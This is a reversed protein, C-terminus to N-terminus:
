FHTPINYIINKKNKELKEFFDYDSDAIHKEYQYFYDDLDTIDHSIIIASIYENDNKVIILIESYGNIIYKEYLKVYKKNGTENGSYSYKILSLYYNISKIM